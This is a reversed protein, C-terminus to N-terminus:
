KANTYAPVSTILCNGQDTCPPPMFRKHDIYNALLRKLEENQNRLSVVQECLNRRKKLIEHYYTLGELLADWIKVRDKNYILRFKEWYLKIDENTMLRSITLRRRELRERTTPLAKGAKYYGQVFQRLAMIVYTSSIVLPHNYRCWLRENATVLRKVTAGTKENVETTYYQDDLFQDLMAKGCIEEISDDKPIDRDQLFSESTVLDIVIEDIKDEPQQTAFYTKDVDKNELPEDQDIIMSLISVTGASGFKMLTDVPNTGSCVPCYAYPIFYNVMLSIYKQNTIKLCDFVNDLRVITQQGDEYGNLLKRLVNETLFGSKDSVLKLVHRVLRKYYLNTCCETIPASWSDAAAPKDEVMMDAPKMISASKHTSIISTTSSKSCVSLRAATACASPLLMKLANKYSLLQTKVIPSQNPQQWEIGMQQEYLIKDTAVIRKLLRKIITTNIDWVKHFKEDNITAFRDAKADIDMISKHLKKIGVTLKEIRDETSTKYDRIKQKMANIADQLKNMRRKNQSKIILNEDERTKLIQYNYDLKESNVLALAKIRELERYMFEIDREIKIKTERFREQYDVRIETMKENFEELRQVKKGAIENEEQERKKYLDEWKKNNEGIVRQREMMLVDEILQREMQYAKRMFTLQKEIIHTLTNIESIQKHQDKDFRKNALKLEKRLMAIIEDKQNILLDCKERQSAIEEHIRLPDQYKEISSWKEAIDHFMEAAASAEADLQEIVKERGIGEIERRDVERADCNVRVSTIEEEALQVYKQLLEASKQMQSQVPASILEDSFVETAMTMRRIVNWRKEIRIRRALKRENPDKSTVQPENLEDTIIIEDSDKDM